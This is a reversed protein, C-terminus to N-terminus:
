TMLYWIWLITILSSIFTLETRDELAEQMYPSSNCWVGKGYGGLLGDVHRYAFYTLMYVHVTFLVLAAIIIIKTM